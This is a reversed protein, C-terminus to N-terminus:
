HKQSGNEGPNNAIKSPQQPGIEASFEQQQESTPSNECMIM